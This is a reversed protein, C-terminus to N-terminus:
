GQEYPVEMTVKQPFLNKALGRGVSGLFYANLHPPPPPPPPPASILNIM